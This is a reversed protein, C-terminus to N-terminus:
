LELSVLLAVVVAVLLMVDDGLVVKVRDSVDEAVVVRV